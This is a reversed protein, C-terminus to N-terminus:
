RSNSFLMELVVTKLINPELGELHIPTVVKVKQTM